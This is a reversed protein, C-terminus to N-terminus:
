GFGAVPIVVADVDDQNDNDYNVNENGHCDHTFVDDHYIMVIMVIM